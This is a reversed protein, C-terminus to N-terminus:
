DEMIDDFVLSVNQVHLVTREGKPMDMGVYGGPTGAGFYQQYTANDGGKFAPVTISDLRYGHNTSDDWSAMLNGFDSDSMLEWKLTVRLRGQQVRRGTLSHQIPEMWEWEATNPDPCDVLDNSGGVQQIKFKQATM